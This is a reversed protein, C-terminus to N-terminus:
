SLFMRRWVYVYPLLVACFKLKCKDIREKLAARYVELESWTQDLRKVFGLCIDCVIEEESVEVAVKLQHKIVFFAVTDHTHALPTSCSNALAPTLPPEGCLWCKIEAM